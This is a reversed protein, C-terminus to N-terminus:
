QTKLLELIRKAAARGDAAAHAVEYQELHTHQAGGVLVNPMGEIKGDQIRLNTDVTMFVSAYNGHIEKLKEDTYTWNSHFKIQPLLLGSLEQELIEKPLRGNEVLERLYGGPNEARDFLDVSYGARALYHACSIGAPGAGIVCVKKGNSHNIPGAFGDLGAFDAVWRHLERIKVPKTDFKLRNCVSECLRGSPCVYGCIGAFPNKERVLRAAGTYNRAEIRRIFGAIDIGAPCTKRCIHDECHQCERAILSANDKDDNIEAPIEKKPNSEIYTVYDRDFSRRHFEKLKIERLIINAAGFGSAVVAPMGMGMTTSDGCAYVGPWDTKASLRKTLEQGVMQKPGGVCGRDKLTYREITTPTAIHLQRIGNRFNPIRKEVEDIILEAQKKKHKEYEASRYETDWPRPWNQNPAPSFMTIIHEDPPGLSHDDVSPIYLTIDGMDIQTTDRVYYEVANIDDPFVKKDVAAYLVMAPYTSVQANAWRRQEDSVENKPLLQSYLKWVTTDSVVRKARIITGDDLKVGCAQHNEFVIEKVLSEYIITSGYREIARELANSYTQASGAVYYTGGVHNDTFMTLAMLAPTEKMSTYAYSACLKDFFEILNQSKLYPSMLDYASMSLVKMLKFVRLPSSFFMRLKTGNSMESPPTLLDRGEIHKRYFKNLFDYLERIEEKESEFLRELEQQFLELDKWFIMQEGAFDLRWFKDRPIVTIPEELYNMLNNHINYGTKGFGFILAAGADFIRDDRLFSTCAGGPLYHQEIILVDLGRKALLSAATLGGIGAGIVIVDYDSKLIREPTIITM